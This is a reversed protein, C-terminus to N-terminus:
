IHYPPVLGTYLDLEVEIIFFLVLIIPGAATLTGHITKPM